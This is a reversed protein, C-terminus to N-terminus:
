DSLSQALDQLYDVYALKFAPDFNKQDAALKVIVVQNDPHVYINQGWIGRALFDGDWDRPTWWQYQYGSVNSSRPNEGPMLHPEDPTVSEEVWGQPLIRQEGRMGKNLYLLGLKAYDRTSAALGGMALEYGQEDLTWLGANEMGLPHWLRSTMYETLSEGTVKVLLIGLLQTNISAYHNFTGPPHERELTNIYEIYSMPPVMTTMKNIDSEPDTYAENFRTGSAMQLVHKVTVGDFTKSTLAPLYKRIPDDLSDLRGEGLAIGLLASTFSKAMSFSIHLSDRDDGHTYTEHIIKGDKIVLFASTDSLEIFAELTTPKGQFDATFQLSDASSGLDWPDPSPSMTSTPVFRDMNRFNEFRDGAFMASFGTAEGGSPTGGITVGQAVVTTSALLTSTIFLNRLHARCSM